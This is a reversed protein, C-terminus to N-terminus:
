CESAGREEWHAPPWRTAAGPDRDYQEPHASVDGERLPWPTTAWPEGIFDNRDCEVLDCIGASAAYVAKRMEENTIRFLEQNPIRHQRLRRKILTEIDRADDISPVRFVYSFGIEGQFADPARHQKWRRRPNTTIGIKSADARYGIYFYGTM